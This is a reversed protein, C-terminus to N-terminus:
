EAGRALAQAFGLLRLDAPNWPAGHEHDAAAALAIRAATTARRQGEFETLPVHWDPELEDRNVTEARYRWRVRPTTRGRPLRHEVAITVLQEGDATVEAHVVIGKRLPDGRQDVPTKCAVSDGAQVLAHDRPAVLPQEGDWVARNFGTVAPAM